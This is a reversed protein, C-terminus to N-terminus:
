EYNTLVNNNVDLVAKKIVAVALECEIQTKAEATIRVVPETGSPRVLIRGDNVIIEAQLIAKKVAEDEM